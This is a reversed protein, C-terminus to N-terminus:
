GPQTIYIDLMIYYLQDQIISNISSGGGYSSGRFGTTYNYDKLLLDSLKSVM